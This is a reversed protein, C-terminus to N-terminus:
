RLPAIPARQRAPVVAGPKELLGLMLSMSRTRDSFWAPVAVISAPGASDVLAFQGAGVQLVSGAAEVAVQGVHVLVGTRQRDTVIDLTTGRIGIVAVQTEIKVDKRASGSSAFRLAGKVVRLAGKSLGGVPDYVFEDITVQSDEGVSLTTGDKFSLTSGSKALTNIEERFHIKQDSRIEYGLSKGLVKNVVRSAVGVEQSFAANPAFLVAVTLSLALGKCVRRGLILGISLLSPATRGRPLPGVPRGVPGDSGRSHHAGDPRRVCQNLDSCTSRSLRHERTSVGLCTM